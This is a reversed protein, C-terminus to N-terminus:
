SYYYYNHTHSPNRGICIVATYPEQKM